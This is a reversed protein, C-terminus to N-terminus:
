KEDGITVVVESSRIDSIIPPLLDFLADNVGLAQAIGDLYAKSAAICNDKDPAPGRPKPRFLLRVPIREGASTYRGVAALTATHAWARHKKTQTAKALYHPRGNPWLAKHPWPLVIDNM